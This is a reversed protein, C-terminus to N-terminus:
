FNKYANSFLHNIVSPPARSLWGHSLRFSTKERDICGPQRLIAPAASDYPQPPQAPRQATQTGAAEQAKQPATAADPTELDLSDLLTDIEASSQAQVPLPVVPSTDRPLPNGSPTDPDIDLCHRERHHKARWARALKPSTRRWTTLRKHRAQAIQRVSQSLYIRDPDGKACYATWGAGDFIEGLSLQRAASGRKTIRGGAARLAKKVKDRDYDGPLLVGHAHLKGTPSTELVLALPLGSLGHQRLARNVRRQLARLPDPAAAISTEVDPHLNMTIAAATMHAQDAALRLKQM